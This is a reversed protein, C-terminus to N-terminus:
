LVVQWGVGGRGGDYGRPLECERFSSMIPDPVDVHDTALPADVRSERGYGMDVPGVSGVGTLADSQM